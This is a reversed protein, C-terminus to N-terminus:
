EKNGELEDFRVDIADLREIVEQHQLDSGYVQMGEPLLTVVLAVWGIAIMPLMLLLMLYFNKENM